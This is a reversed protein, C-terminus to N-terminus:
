RRISNAPLQKWKKVENKGGHRIMQYVAALVYFSVVAGLLMGALCRTIMTSQMLNLRPLLAELGNITLMIILPWRGPEWPKKFRGSILSIVLGTLFGLYIGTCRACVPLVRGTMSFSRDPIQHCIPSFFFRILGSIRRMPLGGQSLFPEFIIMGCWGMSFFLIMFCAIKYRRISKESSEGFGHTQFQM